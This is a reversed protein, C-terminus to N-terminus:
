IMVAPSCQSESQRAHGLSASGPLSKPIVMGLGQSLPRPATGKKNQQTARCERRLQAETQLIRDLVTCDGLWHLETIVNDEQQTDNQQM